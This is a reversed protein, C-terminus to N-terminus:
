WVFGYVAGTSIPAGTDSQLYICPSLQIDDLTVSAFSGSSAAPIWANIASSAPVTTGSTFNFGIRAECESIIILHRSYGINALVLSGAAISFAIPINTSASDIKFASAFRPRLEIASSM